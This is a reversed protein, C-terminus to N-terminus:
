SRCIVQPNPNERFFLRVTPWSVDLSSKVKNNILPLNALKTPKFIIWFYKTSSESWWISISCFFATTNYLKILSIRCLQDAPTLRVASFLLRAQHAWVEIPLIYHLHYTHVLIMCWWWKGGCWSHNILIIQSEFAEFVSWLETNRDM